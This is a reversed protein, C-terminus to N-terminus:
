PGEPLALAELAPLAAALAARDAPALAAIRGALALVRGSREGRVLALGAETAALLSARRDQPDGARALLGAVELSGAIRTMTPGAVGERAALDGARLPGAVALTALASFAGPGVGADGARRVTRVLRGLALYLRAAVDGGDAGGPAAGASASPATM